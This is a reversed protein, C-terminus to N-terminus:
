MGLKGHMCTVYYFIKTLMFMSFLSSSSASHKKNRQKVYKIFCMWYKLTIHLINNNVYM